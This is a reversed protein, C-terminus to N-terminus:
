PWRASIGKMYHPGDLGFVAFSELCWSGSHSQLSRPMFKPSLGTAFYIKGNKQCTKGLLNPNEFNLSQNKYAKSQCTKRKLCHFPLSMLWGAKEVVKAPSLKQSGFIYITPTSHPLRYWNCSSQPLQGRASQAHHHHHRHYHHRHRHHYYHHHQPVQSPVFHVLWAVPRQGWLKTAM